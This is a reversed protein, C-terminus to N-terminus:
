VSCKFGRRCKDIPREKLETEKTQDEEMQIWDYKVEEVELKEEERAMEENQIRIQHKRSSFRFILPGDGFKTSGRWREEAEKLNQM